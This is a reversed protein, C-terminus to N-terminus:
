ADSRTAAPSPVAGHLFLEAFREALQDPPITGDPDYWTYIWNMMGFLAFAALRRDAAGEMGDLESLVGLLLDVYRRKLEDVAVRREGSLSEAEHSLVKMEAMHQAFFLVHHRIFRHLRELPDRGHAVAPGAAELVRTFTRQQILYLLEDKGRVYYYIGALSMGTARSLDRMTTPHFGKDAFVKAATALLRDLKADYSTM